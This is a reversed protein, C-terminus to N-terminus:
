LNDQKGFYIPTFNWVDPIGKRYEKDEKFVRLDLVLNSKTTTPGSKALIQMKEVLDQNVVKFDIGGRLTKNNDSLDGRFSVGNDSDNYSPDDLFSPDKFKYGNYDLLNAIDDINTISKSFHQIIKKRSELKENSKSASMSKEFWNYGLTKVHDQYFPYNISWAISSQKIFILFNVELFKVTIDEGKISHPIEEVLYILGSSVSKGQNLESIKNYDAVIWQTIYM